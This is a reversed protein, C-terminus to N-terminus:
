ANLALAIRQMLIRKFHNPDKAHTLDGDAPFHFDFLRSLWFRLAARRLLHHWHTLELANFPRIAQYANMLANLNEDHLHGDQALCWDNVAIAVDYALCDNCAYYFDIIGGLKEDDFLVNDRFLDGHIVGQPLPSLTLGSQFSLESSLLTQDELSLRPMVKQATAVLWDQGRQNNSQALYSQGAVHMNALTTGIAACHMANPTPIDRGSLCSILVAPKDNLLHLAQGSQNNIPQPCPIHHKALHGMLDIFYPLEDMSNHEFLTLVYKNQTTTVFYNTNTIGSSIGKLEILEGISYGELWSQLQAISVTTFVSM